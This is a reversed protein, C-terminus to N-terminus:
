SERESAAREALKDALYGAKEARRDHQAAEAEDDSREAQARERVFRRRQEDRLVEAQEDQDV